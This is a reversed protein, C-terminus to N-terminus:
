APRKTDAPPSSGPEPAPPLCLTIRCGHGLATDIAVTGEAQRVFDAVQALGLGTGIGAEKTTFFPEFARKAVEPTMGSGTDSVSLCIGGPRAGDAEAGHSAITVKGGDAMADRANVVLNLLASELGGRDAVVFLPQQDLALELVAKKGLAQQLLDTLGTAVENLDLRRAELPQRRSFALLRRSLAAAREAGSRAGDVYRTLNPDERGFRRTLRDLNGIVVTLLNNFDHAIGSSLQGIVELKQSQRLQDQLEGLDAVAVAREREAQAVAEYAWFQRMLAATVAMAAAALLAGGLLLVVIEQRTQKLIEDRKRAVVTVLPFNQVVHSSVIRPKRDFVSETEFVAPPSSKTLGSLGPADLRRGIEGIQPVRVLPMGDLRWLSISTSRNLLLRGWSREFYDLDIGAYVAGLFTGGPAVIRRALYITWRGTALNQVPESVLPEEEARDRLRRFHERESLDIEPTPFGRSYSVVHGNRDVVSLADLQPLGSVRSRLADHFGRVTKLRALAAPSAIENERMEDIVSQLVLDVNELTRSTSEALLANLNLLSRRADEIERARLEVLLAAVGAVLLVLILAGAALVAQVPRSTRIRALLGGEAPPADRVDRSGLQLTAM